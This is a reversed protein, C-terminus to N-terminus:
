NKECAKYAKYAQAAKEKDEALYEKAFADVIGLHNKKYLLSQHRSGM